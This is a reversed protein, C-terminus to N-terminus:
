IKHPFKLAQCINDIVHKTIHTRDPGCLYKFPVAGYKIFIDITILELKQGM